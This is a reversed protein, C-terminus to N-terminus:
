PPPSPPGPVGGATERSIEPGKKEGLDGPRPPPRPRNEEEWIPRSWLPAMPTSPPRPPPLVKRTTNGAPPLPQHRLGRDQDGVVVRDRELQEGLHQGALTVPHPRRGAARVAELPRPALREVQGDDIQPHRPEVPQLHDPA